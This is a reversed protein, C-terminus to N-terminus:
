LFIDKGMACPQSQLIKLIGDLGLWQPIRHQPFGATFSLPLVPLLLLALCLVALASSVRHWSFSTEQLGAQNPCKQWASSWTGSAGGPCTSCAGWAKPLGWAAHNICGKLIPQSILLIQLSPVTNWTNKLQTKGRSLTEREKWCSLSHHIFAVDEGWVSM